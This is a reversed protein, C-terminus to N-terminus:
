GRQCCQGQHCGIHLLNTDAHKSQTAIDKQKRITLGHLHSFGTKYVEHTIELHCQHVGLHQGTNEQARHHSKEEATQRHNCHPSSCLPHHLLHAALETIDLPDHCTLGRGIICPTHLDGGLTCLTLHQQGGQLGDSNGYQYTQQQTNGAHHAQQGTPQTGPEHQSNEHGVRSTGPVIRLFINFLTM